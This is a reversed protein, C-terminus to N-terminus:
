GAVGRLCMRITTEVMDDDLPGDGTAYEQALQDIVARIALAMMVPHGEEIDGRDIALEILRATDAVVIDRGKRLENAFVTETWGFMALQTIDTHAASWQISARIGAELRTLPDEIDVMAAAQAQRLDRLADRLIEILLQDKSEFYWYFVGKGVGVGNVIEAVSTPHFGNEAFRATAYALLNDRRERGRRTLQRKEGM